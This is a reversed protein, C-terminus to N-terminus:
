QPETLTISYYKGEALSVKGNGSYSFTRDNDTSTTSVALNTYDGSPITIFATLSKGKDVQIGNEENLNLSLTSRENLSVTGTLANLTISQPIGGDDASVSITKYKRSYELSSSSTLTFTIKLWSVKHNLTFEGKSDKIDTDAWCYDFASLHEADNDRKQSQGTFSLTIATADSNNSLPSPYVACWKGDNMLVKEGTFLAKKPNESDPRLSYQIATNGLPNPCVFIKDGNKFSFQFENSISKSSPVEGSFFGESPEAISAIYVPVSNEEEPSTHVPEETSVKSCAVATAILGLVIYKLEKM